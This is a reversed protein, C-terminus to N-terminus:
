LFLLEGQGCGLDLVSSNDKIIESIKLIDIRM